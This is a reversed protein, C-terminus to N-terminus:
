QRGNGAPRLRGIRRGAGPSCIGLWSRRAAKVQRRRAGILRGAIIRGSADNKTSLQKGIPRSAEAHEPFFRRSLCLRACRSPVVRKGARALRGNSKGQLKLRFTRGEVAGRLPRSHIALWRWLDPRAPSPCCLLLVVAAGRGLTRLPDFASTGARREFASSGARGITRTSKM